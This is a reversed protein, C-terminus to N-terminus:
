VNEPTFLDFGILRKSPQHSASPGVRMLIMAKTALRDIPHDIVMSLDDDMLGIRTHETVDHGVTVLQRARGGLALMLSSAAGPSLDDM